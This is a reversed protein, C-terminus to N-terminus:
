KATRGFLRLISIVDSFNSIKTMVQSLQITDTVDISVEIEATQNPMTKVKAASVNTHSEGFITSVDMLLGQRNVAIIKLDVRYLNEDAPWTYPMLREPEHVQYSQANPCVKRHIMIGRGRTVYGVVEDGPIPNCCRARVALVDSQGSISLSLKGEKTRSLRIPDLPVAHPVIGRLKQIVSQVSLLGSGVKALLDQGNEVNDILGAVKQLNDEGLYMKPDLKNLALERELAAKGRISHEDRNLKRFYGRLKSRTHASKTFELWDLSPTANSKTILEVVDGNKLVTNLPVMIGNLKCGVLTLGLASHVRFAFDVPSSDKPLDIVDGKPTFVFVQESFFDTSLTRLFDSSEQADSSWGFLQERLNRLRDTDKKSESGEKYTWHAAIGYEAVRHMQETRIQVELPQGGSGVVKTHLSQYGNPKPRAIYDYFLGPIPIWIEHVLGLALYCNSVDPMIIRLALLDYIEEFKLGQKVMKTFISYLHKPRGKVDILPIGKKEFRDKITLIATNLENEREKRSKQVLESVEEFEEPHLVKFSLDELQWKIQWIGLRAALPAYIDLTENAIRTRKEAPLYEITSMNHLRDALKIVMVRFDRAMALLMKRLTETSRQTEAAARQRESLQINSQNSLKTVGEVLAVIAPSFTSELKSRFEPVDEFVDHLLASIISEDDMGLDVVIEAVSLPHHIYPTGSQRVQGSHAQEALFYALRIKHLDSNPRQERIKNLLVHLEEPEDWDSRIEVPDDM